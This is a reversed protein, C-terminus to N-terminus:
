YGLSSLRLDLEEPSAFDSALEKAAWRRGYEMLFDKYSGPGIRAWGKMNDHANKRTESDEEPFIVDRCADLLRDLLAECYAEDREALGRNTRSRSTM